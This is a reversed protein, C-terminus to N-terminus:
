SISPHDPRGAHSSPRHRIRHPSVNGAIGAAAGEAPLPLRARESAKILPLTYQIDARGTGLTNEASGLVGTGRAMVAAFAETSPRRRPDRARM